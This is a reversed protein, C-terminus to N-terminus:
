SPEPHAEPWRTALDICTLLFRFGGTATPFPGVLDIAVREFPITVTERIQMPNRPPKAKDMRQCADCGKIFAQCDRSLSPWYFFPKITHALTLCKDRYKMPLCIQNYSSGFKNIRSRFIIGEREYYGEKEQRALERPVKLTEDEQSTQAL